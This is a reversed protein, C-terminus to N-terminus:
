GLIRYLLTVVADKVDQKNRADCGIVEIDPSIALGLRIDEAEWADPQDQKNAVLICPTDPHHCRVTELLAVIAGFYEPRTSDVIIIFGPLDVHEILERLWIFDFHRQRPPELFRMQMQEDVAVKGTFWGMADRTKKSITKVFTTKGCAPLGAVLVELVHTRTAAVM